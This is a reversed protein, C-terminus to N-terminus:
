AVMGDFRDAYLFFHEVGVCLHFALWERLFRDEDRFVSCVALYYEHKGRANAASKPLASPCADDGGVCRLVEDARGSSAATGSLLLYVAVTLVTVTRKMARM